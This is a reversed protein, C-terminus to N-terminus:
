CLSERLNIGAKDKVSSYHVREVRANSPDCADGPKLQKLLTNIASKARYASQLGRAFVPILCPFCHCM